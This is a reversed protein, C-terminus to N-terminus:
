AYANMNVQEIDKSDPSWSVYINNFNENIRNHDFRFGERQDMCTIVLSNKCGMSYLKDFAIAQRLLGYDLEGVKFNGQYENTVNIEEENNTLKIKSENFPGNGHRTSYSRTVYYIERDIVNLKDCVELANKSTTNAYTVHPFVGHDMDLLIGQSGEFILNTYNNLVRYDNINWDLNNVADNFENIENLLDGPEYNKGSKAWKQHYYMKIQVLKDKLLSVNLLDVAFLKYPGENRKMTKGIGLGCSGDKLNSYDYRNDWVDWPTIVKALPHIDLRSKFINAGDEILAKKERAITVPYICTHETFYSPIGRLSGSGYNSHIHKIGNIMVTHGAQPGGSYRIVISNNLNQCLYDTTIGKGSDGFGLDTIIHGKM